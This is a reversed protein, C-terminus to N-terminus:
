DTGSCISDLVGCDPKKRPDCTIQSGCVWTLDKSCIAGDKGESACDPKTAKPDCTKSPSPNPNPSPPSPTSSAKKIM